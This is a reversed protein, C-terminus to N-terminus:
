YLNENRESAMRTLPPVAPRRMGVSCPPAWTWREVPPSSAADWPVSHSIPPSLPWLHSWTDSSSTEIGSFQLVTQSQIVNQTVSSSQWMNLESNLCCLCKPPPFISTFTFWCTTNSIKQIFGSGCDKQSRFCFATLIQVSGPLPHQETLHSIWHTLDESHYYFVASIINRYLLNVLCQYSLYFCLGCTLNQGWKLCLDWHVLHWM